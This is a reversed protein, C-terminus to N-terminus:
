RKEAPGTAIAPAQPGGLLEVMAKDKMPDPPLKVPTTMERYKVLGLSYNHLQRRLENNERQLETSKRQLKSVELKMKTLSAM